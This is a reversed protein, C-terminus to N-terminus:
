KGSPRMEELNWWRKDNVNLVLIEVCLVAVIRTVSYRIPKGLLFYKVPTTM